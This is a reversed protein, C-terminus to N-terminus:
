LLDLKESDDKVKPRAALDELRKFRRSMQDALFRRADDPRIGFMRVYQEFQQLLGLGQNKQVERVFDDLGALPNDAERTKLENELLSRSVRPHASWVTEYLFDSALKRQRLVYEVDGQHVKKGYLTGMVPGTSRRGTLRQQATEFLDGKGFSFIFVFMVLITLGAFIVKQHKRFWTFPNFAM